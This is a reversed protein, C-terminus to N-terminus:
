GVDWENADIEPFSVEYSGADLVKATGLEGNALPGNEVVKSGLHIKCAASPVPQRNDKYLLKVKVFHKQQNPCPEIPTGTGVTPQTAQNVPGLLQSSPTTTVAPQTPSKGKSPFM